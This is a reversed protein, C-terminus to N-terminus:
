DIYYANEVNKIKKDFLPVFSGDPMEEIAVMRIQDPVLSEGVYLPTM